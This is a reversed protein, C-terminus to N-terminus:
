SAAEKEEEEADIRRQEAASFAAYGEEGWVKAVEDESAGAEAATHLAQGLEDLAQKKPLPM